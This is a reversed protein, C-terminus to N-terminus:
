WARSRQRAAAAILLGALVSGGAYLAAVLPGSRDLLQLAELAFTSFTTLAGALGVGLLAYGPGRAARRETLGALTGLLASGLLNAIVTAIPVESIPAIWIGLGYRVLAGISGGLFVAIATRVLGPAARDANM